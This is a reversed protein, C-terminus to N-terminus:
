TTPKLMALDLFLMAAREEGDAVMPGLVSLATPIWLSDRRLQQLLSVLTMRLEHRKPYRDIANLFLQEIEEM